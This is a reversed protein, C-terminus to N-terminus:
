VPTGGRLMQPVKTNYDAPTEALAGGCLLAIALALLFAIWRPRRQM